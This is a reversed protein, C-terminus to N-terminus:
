SRDEEPALDLHILTMQARNLFRLPFLSTGLGSDVYVLAGEELKFPGKDYSPFFGQGPAVLAGLGPLRVQGGHTHGCIILDAEPSAALLGLDPAHAALLLFDHEAKDQGLARALDDRGTSPDDLGVLRLTKKSFPLCVAENALPIVGCDALGAMFAPGRPNEWEHNGSVFYTDARDALSRALHFMPTFDQTKRDIMDGTLVIIDPDEKDVRKLLPANEKYFVRDHLDSIQLVKVARKKAQPSFDTAEVWAGEQVYVRALGFTWTDYVVLALLLFLLLALARIVHKKILM